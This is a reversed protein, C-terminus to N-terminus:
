CFYKDKKTSRPFFFIRKNKTNNIKKGQKYMQGLLITSAKVKIRRKNDQAAFQFYLGKLCGTTKVVFFHKSSLVLFFILQFKGNKPLPSFFALHNKKVEKTAFIVFSISKKYLCKQSIITKVYHAQNVVKNGYYHNPFRIKFTLLKLLSKYFNFYCCFIVYISRKQLPRWHLLIRYKPKPIQIKSYILLLLFKSIDRITKSKLFM